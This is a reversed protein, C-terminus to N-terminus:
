SLSGLCNTRCIELHRLYTPANVLLAAPVNVYFLEKRGSVWSAEIVSNSYCLEFGLARRSNDYSEIM